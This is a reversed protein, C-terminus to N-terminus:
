RFDDKGPVFAIVAEMLFRKPLPWRTALRLMCRGGEYETAWVFEHAEGEIADAPLWPGDMDPLRLAYIALDQSM